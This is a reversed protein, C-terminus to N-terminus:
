QESGLLNNYSLTRWKLLLVIPSQGGQVLRKTLTDMGGPVRAVVLKDVAEGKEGAQPPKVVVHRNAVVASDIAM